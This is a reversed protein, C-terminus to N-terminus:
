ALDKQVSVSEPWPRVGPGGLVDNERFRSDVPLPLRLSGLLPM